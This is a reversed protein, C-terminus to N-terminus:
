HFTITGNSEFHRDNSYECRVLGNLRALSGLNGVLRTGSKALKSKTGRLEIKSQRSDLSPQFGAPLATSKACGAMPKPSSHRARMALTIGNIPGTGNPDSAPIARPGPIITKGKADVIAAGKPIPGNIGAIREGAVVLEAHELVRGTGDIIRAHRMITSQASLLSCVLILLANSRM